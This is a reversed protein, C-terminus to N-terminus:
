NCKYLRAINVEHFESPLESVEGQGLIAHKFKMLLLQQLSRYCQWFKTMFNIQNMSHRTAQLGSYRLCLLREINPLSETFM